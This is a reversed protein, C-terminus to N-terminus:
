LIPDGNDMEFRKPWRHCSQIDGVPKESNRSTKKRESRPKGSLNRQATHHDAHHCDSDENCGDRPDVTRELVPYIPYGRGNSVAAGVGGPM